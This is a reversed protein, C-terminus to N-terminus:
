TAAAVFVSVLGRHRTVLIHVLMQLPDLMM